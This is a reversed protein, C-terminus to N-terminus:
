HPAIRLSFSNSSSSRIALGRAGTKQDLAQEATEELADPTFVLDVKDLELFKRYQKIIANKPETLIRMLADSDLPELGVIM